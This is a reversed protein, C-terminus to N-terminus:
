LVMAFLFIFFGIAIVLVSTVLVVQKMTEEFEKAEAIKKRREEAAAEKAAQIRRAREDIIGQWTGPGFRLDILNRMEQMKEQALRADIVESAINSVGFQDGIGPYASKSRKQQVQKEGEFLQDVYGAIEGVDKATNIASKIGDVASKVLAIGALAEAIM